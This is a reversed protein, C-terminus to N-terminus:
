FEVNSTSSLDIDDRPLPGRGVFAYHEDTLYVGDGEVTVSIADLYAGECPGFTCLGTEAEFMAGHNQCVIEGDRMPAGEGKDLRIHTLHQCHNLWGVVTGGARVLLAELVEDRAPDRVRFVLTSNEPVDEVPAVLSAEAM